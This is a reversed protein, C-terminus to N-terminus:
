EPVEAVAADTTMRYTVQGREVRLDVDVTLDRGAHHLLDGQGPMEDLWYTRPGGEDVDIPPVFRGYGWSLVRRRADEDLPELADTLAQFATVELDSM